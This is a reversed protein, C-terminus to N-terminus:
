NPHWDSIIGIKKKQKQMTRITNPMIKTFRIHRIELKDAYRGYSYGYMEAAIYHIYKM